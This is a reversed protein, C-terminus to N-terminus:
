KGLKLVPQTEWFQYKKQKAEDQTKAPGQHLQERGQTVSLLEMAKRLDSLNKMPNAQNAAAAVLEDAM